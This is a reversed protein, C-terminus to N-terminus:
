APARTSLDRAARAVDDALDRAARRDDESLTRGSYRARYYLSVLRHFRDGLDPHDRTLRHAFRRPTEAPDRTRGARRLARLARDYHPLEHAARAAPRRARSRRLLAALAAPLTRFPWVILFVGAAFAAFVAVGNLLRQADDRPPGAPRDPTIRRLAAGVLGGARDGLGLLRDQDDADYGVVRTIWFRRATDALDQLAGLVGGPARGAQLLGSAPTADYRRRVLRWPADRAPGVREPVWAEVWAHAHRARVIYREAAPDIEFSAYGTVVDADVGLSRAMAALASAFYECHGARTNNFFHLLPDRDAPPEPANLDYRYTSRLHRELALLLEHDARHHRLLPDRPPADQDLAALARDRLWRPEPLLPKPRRADPDFPAARVVSGLPRAAVEYNVDGSRDPMRLVGDNPNLTVPGSERVVVRLPWGIAFLHESTKEILRIDQLLLGRGGVLPAGTDGPLREVRSIRNADLKASRESRRWVSAKQDFDDLVAGRLYQTRPLLVPNGDLSVALEAVVSRSESVIGGAGPRVTDAFGTERADTPTPPGGRESLRDRPMLLFAAATAPGGVTVGILAVAAVARAVARGRALRQQLVAAGARHEDGDAAASASRWVGSYLQFLPASVLLSLGFAISSVGVGLSPSSLMAAIVLLAALTFLQVDERPRRTDLLKIVLLALVYLAFVAVADRSGPGNRFEPFAAAAMVLTAAVLGASLAPRPVLADTRRRAYALTAALAGAGALFVAPSSAALAYSLVALLLTTRMALQHLLYLTM